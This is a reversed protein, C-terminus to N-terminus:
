HCLCRALVQEWLGVTNRNHLIQIAFLKNTDPCHWVGGAYRTPFRRLSAKSERLAFLRGVVPLSGKYLAGEHNMSMPQRSHEMKELRCLANNRLWEEDTFKKLTVNALGWRDLVIREAGRAFVLQLHGSMLKHSALKFEVPISARLDYLAWLDFSDTTHDQFTAFLQSAVTGIANHDRAMGVVQAVVVRSCTDCKWIKGQGRGVGMWSFNISTREGNEGETRQAKMQSEFSARNKKADRATDKLIKELNAKLDTKPASPSPIRFWKRFYPALMYYPTPPGQEPKAANTWRIQASMTGAGPSDVRIYGNDRDLSFGTVNWDPPLTFRVGQWGVSTPSPLDTPTEAKPNRLARGGSADLERSM